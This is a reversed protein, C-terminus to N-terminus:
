RKVTFQAKEHVGGGDLTITYSGTPLQTVDISQQYSTKAKIQWKQENNLPSGVIIIVFDTPQDYEVYVNVYDTAETPYLKLHQKDKSTQQKPKKNDAQQAFVYESTILLSLVLILTRM